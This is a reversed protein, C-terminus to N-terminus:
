IWQMMLAVKYTLTGATRQIEIQGNALVRLNAQDTGGGATYLTTTTGPTIALAGTNAIQILGNSARVLSWLQLAYVADSAGNPVIVITTGALGDYEYFAWRGMTGNVHLPGCPTNQRVGVYGDNSLGLVVRTNTVDYFGFTCDGAGGGVNDAFLRWRAGAAPTGGTTTNQVDFGAQGARAIHLNPLSGGSAGTATGVNLGSPLSMTNDITVAGDSGKLYRLNDWVQNMVTASVVQGTSFYPSAGVTWAM